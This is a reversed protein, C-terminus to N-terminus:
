WPRWFAEDVKLARPLLNVDDLILDAGKKLFYDTMEENTLVGAFLAKIGKASANKVMLLDEASDGVYLIREAGLKESCLIFGDPNPKEFSEDLEGTFSSADADFYKMLDGLTYETEWYGRGTLIALGKEAIEVLEKLTEERVLVRENEIAGKWRAYRPEAHYRRKVGEEGLYIEEFLTSLINSGYSMDSGLMHRLEKLLKLRDKSLPLQDILAEVGKRDVYEGYLSSCTKKLWRLARAVFDPESEDRLVRPLFGEVDILGLGGSAIRLAQDSHAVIAQTLILVVNWDKNFGGLAKLSKVADDADKGLKVELGCIENLLICTTLKDTLYYSNFTDIITGDCDFVISDIELLEEVKESRVLIGSSLLKYSM